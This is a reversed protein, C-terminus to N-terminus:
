PTSDQNSHAVWIPLVGLSVRGQPADSVGNPEQAMFAKLYVISKECHSAPRMPELDNVYTHRGSSPRFTLNEFCTYQISPPICKVCKTVIENKTIEYCDVVGQSM